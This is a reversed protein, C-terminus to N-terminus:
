RVEYKDHRDLYLQANTANREDAYGTAIYYYFECESNSRWGFYRILGISIMKSVTKDDFETANFGGAFVRNIRQM